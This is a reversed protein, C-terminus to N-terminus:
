APWRPCTKVTYSPFVVTFVAPLLPTVGKPKLVKVSDLFLKQKRLQARPNEQRSAESVDM